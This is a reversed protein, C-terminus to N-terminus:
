ASTIVNYKAWRHLDHVPSIWLWRLRSKSGRCVRGRTAINRFL